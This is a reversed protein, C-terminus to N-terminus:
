HPGAQTADDLTCEAAIMSLVRERHDDRQLNFVPVGFDAAIRIAQGTGGTLGSTKLAVGDAGDATFCLVFRSYADRNDLDDGLVQHVNRGMLM